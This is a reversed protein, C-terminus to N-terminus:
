STTCCISPTLCLLGAIVWKRPGGNIEQLWQDLRGSEGMDLMWIGSAGGRRPLRTQPTAPDSKLPHWRTPRIPPGVVGSPSSSEGGVSLGVIPGRVRVHARLRRGPHRRTAQSPWGTWERPVLCTQWEFSLGTTPEGGPDEDRLREVCIERTGGPQGPQGKM